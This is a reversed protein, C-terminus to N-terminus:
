THLRPASFAFTVENGCGAATQLWPMGDGCILSAVAAAYSVVM